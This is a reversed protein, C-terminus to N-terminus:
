MQIEKIKRVQNRKLEFGQAKSTLINLVYIKNTFAVGTDIDIKDGTYHPDFIGCYKYPKVTLNLKGLFKLLEQTPTHGHILTRGPAWGYSFSNRDWLLSKADNKDIPKQYYECESVREFTPYVGGAHCFDYHEYSFTYPLNDIKEVFDMPMGDMIWDTLTDMAGNILALQIKEYKYEFMLTSKLTNNVQEETPNKFSFKDKIQYAAQVFLDEHNGKLYIVQPNDLLEKIIQYGNPGRDCADGLFIISCEPDQEYCYKIISDYLLKQGHIDSFCFINHM